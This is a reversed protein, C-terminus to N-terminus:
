YWYGFIIDMEDESTLGFTVTRTADGHYTVESALGEGPQLVIPAAFTVISPHEWDTNTYVVEGARAGGVIRIVFRTGRKHMHSSLAFVRTAASVKFAHVITTDRGRPVTIDTNNMFLTGAVKSVEGLPVTHFNLEAEGTLPANGANVYHANLDIMQGAPLKLAVGAPFDYSMTPTMSGALFIHYPMALATLLNISGDANHLDRVVGTAPTAIVPMSSAMTYALLHHSGPRMQMEIRRVYVDSANGLPKYVFIERETHANVSFPAVKLQMGQVPPPLPAYPASYQATAGALLSADVDDGSSKAGALIWRRVFEVQEVSLAPGNLPMAAGYDASHHGATWDLKHWLLSKAPDGPVVRKLGGARAVAQEPAVNVLSTYAGSGTLGLGGASGGNGHCASFACSPVLVDTQLRQWSTKAVPGDTGASGACGVAAVLGLLAVFQRNAAAARSASPAPAPPVDFDAPPKLVSTKPDQFSACPRGRRSPARPPM